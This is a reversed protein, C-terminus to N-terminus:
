KSKTSQTITNSFFNLIREMIKNDDNFSADRREFYDAYDLKRFMQAREMAAVHEFANLILLRKITLPESKAGTDLIAREFHSDIDVINRYWDIDGDKIKNNFKQEDKVFSEYLEYLEEYTPGKSEESMTRTFISSKPPTDFPLHGPNRIEPKLCFNTLEGQKRYYYLQLSLTIEESTVFMRITPHQSYMTNIISFVPTDKEPYDM